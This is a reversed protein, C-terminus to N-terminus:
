RVWRPALGRLRRGASIELNTPLFYLGLIKMMRLLFITVFMIVCLVAMAPESYFLLSDVLSREVQIKLSLLSIKVTDGQAVFTTFKQQLGAYVSEFALTVLGYRVLFPKKPKLRFRRQIGFKVRRM